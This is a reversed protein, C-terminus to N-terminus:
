RAVIEGSMGPHFTCHYETTGNPVTFAATVVNGPEVTGTSLNLSDISFNHQNSGENHVEVQVETGARLRLVDPSFEDDHLTVAVADPGGGGDQVDGSRERSCASLALLALSLVIVSARFWSRHKM